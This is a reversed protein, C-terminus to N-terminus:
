AGDGPLCWTNEDRQIVLNFRELDHIMAIVVNKSVNAKGAIEAVNVCKNRAVYDMLLIEAVYYPLEYLGKRLEECTYKTEVTESM